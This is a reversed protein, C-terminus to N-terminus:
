DDRKKNEEWEKWDVRKFRIRREDGHHEYGVQIGYERLKPNTRLKENICYTISSIQAEDNKPRGFLPLIMEDPYSIVDAKNKTLIKDADAILDEPVVFRERACANAIKMAKKFKEEELIGM